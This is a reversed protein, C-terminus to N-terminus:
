EPMLEVPLAGVSRLADRSRRTSMDTTSRTDAHPGTMQGRHAAPDGADGTALAEGVRVSITVGVGVGAGVGVAEGSRLTNEDVFPTGKTGLVGPITQLTHATSAVSRSAYVGSSIRCIDANEPVSM